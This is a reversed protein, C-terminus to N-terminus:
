DEPKVSLVNTIVNVFLYYSMKRMSAFLSFLNNKVNLDEIAEFMVEYTSKKGGYILDLNAIIDRNTIGIKENLDKIGCVSIIM